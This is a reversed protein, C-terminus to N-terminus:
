IEMTNGEYRKRRGLDQLQTWTRLMGNLKESRQTHPDHAVSRLPLDVSLYGARKPWDDELSSSNIFLYAYIINM